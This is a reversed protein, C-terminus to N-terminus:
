TVLLPDTVDIRRVDVSLVIQLLAMHYGSKM